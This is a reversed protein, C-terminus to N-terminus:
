GRNIESVEKETNDKQEVKEKKEKEEQERGQTQEEERKQQESNDAGLTSKRERLKRQKKTNELTLKNDKSLFDVVILSPYPESDVSIINSTIHRLFKRQTLELVEQLWSRYFLQLYKYAKESVLFLLRSINYVPKLFIIEYRGIEDPCFYEHQLLTNINCSLITSKKKKKSKKKIFM